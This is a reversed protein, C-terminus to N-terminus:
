SIGVLFPGDKERYIYSFRSRLDDRLLDNEVVITFHM